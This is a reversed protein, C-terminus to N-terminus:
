QATTISITGAGQTISITAPGNVLGPFQNPLAPGCVALLMCIAFGAKAIRM